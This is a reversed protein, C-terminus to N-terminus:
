WIITWRLLKQRQREPWQSNTTHQCAPFSRHRCAPYASQGQQCAHCDYCIEGCDPSHCALITQKASHPESRMREGYTHMLEDHHERLLQALTIM